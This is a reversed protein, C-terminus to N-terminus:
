LMPEKDRWTEQKAQMAAAQEKTLAVAELKWGPMGVLVPMGAWKTGSLASAVNVRVNEAQEGNLTEDPTVVLCITREPDGEIAAINLNELGTM